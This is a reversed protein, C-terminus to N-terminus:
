SDTFRSNRVILIMETIEGLTHEAGDEFYGVRKAGAKEFFYVLPSQHFFERVAADLGFGLCGKWDVVLTVANSFKEGIDEDFADEDDFYFADITEGVFMERLAEVIEVSGAAREAEQDIELFGYDVPPSHDEPRLIPGHFQHDVAFAVPEYRVGSPQQQPHKAVLKVEGSRFIAAALPLAAGAGNQHVAGRHTRAPRGDRGDCAFLDGGDLSQRLVAFQMGQLFGEDLGVRQLAPVARGAHNEGADRQELLRRLRAFGLDAAGEFAVNAAAPGIWADDVGDTHGGPHLM